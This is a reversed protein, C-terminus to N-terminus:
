KEKDFKNGVVVIRKCRSVFIGFPVELGKDANLFKCDFRKLREKWTVEIISGTELNSIIDGIYIENGNMDKEGTFQCVTSPYVRPCFDFQNEGKGTLIYTGHVQQLLDGYVWENNYISKAKFKINEIKM